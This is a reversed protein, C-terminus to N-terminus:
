FGRSLSEYHWLQAQPALAIQYGLGRARECLDTDSGITPLSEDFGELSLFFERRLLLCAGTVAAVGRPHQWKEQQRIESWHEHRHLHDWKGDARRFMGAHQVSDDPYLLLAGVVGVGPQLATVLLSELWDQSRVLTDNNLFLVWEGQSQEVGRNCLLSFNFPEDCDVVHHRASRRARHLYRLTRRERSGNNVLIIEYDRYTSTQVSQLCSRLLDFQDRFPIIISVKGQPTVPTFPLERDVHDQAQDPPSSALARKLSRVARFAWTSRLWQTWELDVQLREARRHEARYREHLLALLASPRNHKARKKHTKKTM